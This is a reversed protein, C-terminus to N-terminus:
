LEKAKSMSLKSFLKRWIENEDIPTFDSNNFVMSFTGNVKKVSDIIETVTQTKESDSDGKFAKTTMALPQIILPTVIEYDLDYFLFPTCTSARFGPSNEYVLTFDREIEMEVLNRYNDPLNVM